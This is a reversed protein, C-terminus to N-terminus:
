SCVKKYAYEWRECMGLWKHKPQSDMKKLQRDFKVRLGLKELGTHIEFM